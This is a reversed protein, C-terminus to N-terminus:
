VAAERRKRASRARRQQEAELRVAHWLVSEYTVRWRKRTGKFWLEVYHAHLAICLPKRDVFATERMVARDPAIRTM